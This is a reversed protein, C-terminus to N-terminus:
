QKGPSQGKHRGSSRKKALESVQGTATKGRGKAEKWGSVRFGSSSVIVEDKRCDTKQRRDVAL